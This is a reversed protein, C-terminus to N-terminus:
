RPSDSDYSRDTARRKFRDTIWGKRGNATEVLWYDADKGLVALEEDEAIWAIQTERNPKGLLMGENSVDLYELPLNTSTLADKDVFGISGNPLKIRYGDRNVGIATAIQDSYLRQSRRRMQPDQYVQTRRNVRIDLGLLDIDRDLKRLRKGEKRIHNIPDMAGNAYIGFHLHPPTTRANGTNGVTGITDGPMVKQGRKAKIENMHAFYLSRSRKSDYLWVVKGGIGREGAFRVYGETPAVIPTGRRAFIDVGEHKRRGGDRDDGWFSGIASPTKGAVPFILTPVNEITIKFQGGRLLEPQFRLVYEADRRPEFGLTLAEDDATAVHRFSGLAEVRYLDIFTKLDENTLQDVTIQIKQGRKAKFKYGMASAEKEDLYFAEEYPTTISLPNNLSEKASLKWDQGLASAVLNADELSKLYAEHDNRPYFPKPVKEEECAIFALILLLFGLWKLPRALQM